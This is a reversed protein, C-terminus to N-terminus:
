PAARGRAAGDQRRASGHRSDVGFGEGVVRRTDVDRCPQRFGLPHLRYERVVARVVNHTHLQEARTQQRPGVMAGHEVNVGGVGITTALQEGGGTERASEDEVGVSVRAARM